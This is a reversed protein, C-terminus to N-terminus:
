FNSLEFTPFESLKFNFAMFLGYAFLFLGYVIVTLYCYKMYSVKMWKHSIGKQKHSGFLLIEYLEGEDM